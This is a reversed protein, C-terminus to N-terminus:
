VDKRLVYNNKDLTNVLGKIIDNKKSVDLNDYTEGSYLAMLCLPSVLEKKMRSIELESKGLYSDALDDHSLCVRVTIKKNESNKSVDVIYETGKVMEIKLDIESTKGSDDIDAKENLVEFSYVNSEIINVTNFYIFYLDYEGAKLDSLVYQIRGNMYSKDDIYYEKGNLFAKIESKQNIYKYADTKLIIRQVEDLYYEEKRNTIIIDDIFDNLIIDSPEPKPSPNPLSGKKRKKPNLYDQYANKIDKKLEDLEEDNLGKEISMDAIKNNIEILTNQSALEHIVKDLFGSTLDSNKIRSRDTTFFQYKENGLLDLDIHVLLRYKLFNLGRNALKTYNEGNIYQGNVTFFIQKLHINFMEYYEKCKNDNIWEDEKPPLIVYYKIQYIRGNHNISIDGSYEEKVYKTWTKLKLNTGYVYRGQHQINEAFYSRNDLTYVPLPTGFLEINFYDSLMRPKTIDQERYRKTIELDIMRVITGSDSMLFNNLYEPIDNSELDNEVKAIEGDLALYVYAHNKNGKLHIKRALTFYYNEKNKSLIITAYAFALSTSGGQGFAGILYNQEEKIKNGGHLSLITKSFDCGEIGIGLDIIDFTPTNKKTGDNVVLSVQNVTEYPFNGTESKNMVKKYHQFYKPFAKKIIDSSSKAYIINNIYKQKEIVADIGNTIREIIGKEGNELLDIVSANSENNGVFNFYPKIDKFTLNPNNINIGTYNYIFDDVQSETLISLIESIKKM